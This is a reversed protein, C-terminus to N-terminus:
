LEFEKRQLGFGAFLDDLVYEVKQALPLSDGSHKFKSQAVRGIFELFEVFQLRGYEKYNLAENVVTMKCMGYCFKVEIESIGVPALSMCLDVMDQQDPWKHTVSLFSKYIIELSPINIEFVDNVDMCWLENDRWSQWAEVPHHPLIFEKILVELSEAFTEYVKNDKFKTQALRLCFEWFQARCLSNGNSHPM